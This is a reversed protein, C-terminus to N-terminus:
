LSRFLTIPVGKRYYLDGKETIYTGKKNSFRIIQQKYPDL